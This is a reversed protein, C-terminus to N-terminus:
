DPTVETVRLRDARNLISWAPLHDFGLILETSTAGLIHRVSTVHHRGGAAFPLPLETVKGYDAMDIEGRETAVLVMRVGDSTGRVEAVAGDRDTLVVSLVEADTDGDPLVLRRLRFSDARSGLLRQFDSTHYAPRGRGVANSM